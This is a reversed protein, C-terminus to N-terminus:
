RVLTVTGKQQLQKNQSFSYEVLYVYVDQNLRKSKYTGDWGKNIDNTMFVLQGSRNYVRLTFNLFGIRPCQPKSKFLDNLGDDNPTFASPIFLRCQDCNQITLHM